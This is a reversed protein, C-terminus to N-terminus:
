RYFTGLGQGGGLGVFGAFGGDLIQQIAIHHLNLAGVGVGVMGVLCFLVGEQVIGESDAVNLAAAAVVGTNDGNMCILMHGSVAVPMGKGTGIFGRLGNHQFVILRGLLPLTRTRKGDSEVDRTIVSHRGDGRRFRFDSGHVNPYRDAASLIGGIMRVPHGAQCHFRDDTDAINLRIRDGTFVGASNFDVGAVIHRLEILGVAVCHVSWGALAPVNIQSIGLFRVPPDGGSGRVINDGELDLTHCAGGEVIQLGDEILVNMYVARRFGHVSFSEIIQNLIRVDNIVIRSRSIIRGASNDDSGPQVYFLVICAEASVGGVAFALANRQIVRVIAPSRRIASKGNNELHLAIRFDNRGGLGVILLEALQVCRNFHDAGRLGLRVGGCVERQSSSCVGDAINDAVFGVAVGAVNGDSSVSIHRPVVQVIALVGQGTVVGLSKRQLVYLTLPSDIGGHGERNDARGCLGTSFIQGLQFRGHFHDAGRLGLGM